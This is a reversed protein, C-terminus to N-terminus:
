VVPVALQGAHHQRGAACHFVVIRRSQRVTVCGAHKHKVGPFIDVPPDDLWTDIRVAACAWAIFGFGFIASRFRICVVVSVTDFCVEILGLSGLSAPNSWYLLWVSM